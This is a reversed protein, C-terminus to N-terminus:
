GPGTLTGGLSSTLRAARREVEELGIAAATGRLLAEIAAVAGAGGGTLVFDAQREVLITVAAFPALPSGASDTVAVIPVRARHLHEAIQLGPETYRAFALQIAVDEPGAGLIKRHAEETWGGGALAECGDRLTLLNFAAYHAIFASSGFGAVFVRRARAILNSAKAFAADGGVASIGRIRQVDQDISMTWPAARSLGSARVSEVLDEVPRLAERLEAHLLRKLEPYGTLGLKRALRNATAASVGTAGSLRELTMLAAEHPSALIFDALRKHGPSLSGYRETILAVASRADQQSTM